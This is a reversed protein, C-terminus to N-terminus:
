RSRANVSWALSAKMCISAADKLYVSAVDVGVSERVRQVIIQLAQDLDPASNVEQVIRRLIDLM